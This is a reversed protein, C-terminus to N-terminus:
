RVPIVNAHRAIMRWTASERKWVNTFRRQVPAAVAATDSAARVTESGMVLAVNGIVQVVDTARDFLSYHLGGQQILRLVADRGVNIRNTPANVTLQPPWLRELASRDGGLVALREQNDLDRVVTAAAASDRAQAQPTTALTTLALFALGSVDIPRSVYAEKSAEALKTEDALARM